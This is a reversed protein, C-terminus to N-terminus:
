EIGSEIPLLWKMLYTMAKYSLLITLYYKNKFYDTYVTNNIGGFNSVAPTLFYYSM